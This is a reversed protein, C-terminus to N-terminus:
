LDGEAGHGARGAAPLTLAVLEGLLSVSFGPTKAADTMRVYAALTQRAGADQPAMEQPAEGARSLNQRSLDGLMAFLFRESELEVAKVREGLAERGDVGRTDISRLHRRAKRLPGTVADDWRAAIEGAKRIVLGQPAEFHAGTWLSWLCM